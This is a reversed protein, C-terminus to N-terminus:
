VYLINYKIDLSKELSAFLCKELAAFLFYHTFFDNHQRLIRLRVCELTQNEPTRM